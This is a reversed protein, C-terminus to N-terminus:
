EGALRLMEDEIDSSIRFNVRKLAAIKQKVSNILGAQKARYIIGLTGTVKVGMEGAKKRAKRYDISVISNKTELALVMISAEGQNVSRKLVGLYSQDKPSQISMWEPISYGYENAVEETILTQSYLSKLLQVEGIKGLFILCSTDPIISEPM